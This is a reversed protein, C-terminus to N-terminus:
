DVCEVGSSCLRGTLSVEFKMPANSEVALM